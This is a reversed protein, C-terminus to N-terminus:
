GVRQYERPNKVIEQLTWDEVLERSCDDFAFDLRRVCRLSSSSNVIVDVEGNKQRSPSLEVECLRVPSRSFYCVVVEM